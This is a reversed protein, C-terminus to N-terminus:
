DIEVSQKVPPLTSGSSFGSSRGECLQGRGWGQQRGSPTCSSNALLIMTQAFVPPYLYYMVDYPNGGQVIAKFASEYNKYDWSRGSYEVVLFLFFFSVLFPLVDIILTGISPKPHKRLERYANIVLVLWMWFAFMGFLHEETTFLKPM